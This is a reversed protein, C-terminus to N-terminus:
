ERCREVWRYGFPCVRHFRDGRADTCDRDFHVRILSGGGCRQCRARQNTFPPRDTQEVPATTMGASVVIPIHAAPSQDISLRL